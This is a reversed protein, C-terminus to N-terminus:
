RPERCAAFVGRVLSGCREIMSVSEAGRRRVPGVRQYRRRRSAFFLIAAAIDELKGSRSVPITEVRTAVFDEFDFGMREATTRTMETEVFGPAVANATGSFQGLEIALTKTFGQLSAKTASYNPQDPQRSCLDLLRQRGQRLPERGHAEAGGPQM